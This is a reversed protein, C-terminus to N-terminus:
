FTLRTGLGVSFDMARAGRSGGEVQAFGCFGILSSYKWCLDAFYIERAPQGRSLYGFAAFQLDFKSQLPLVLGTGITVYNEYLGAQGLVDDVRKPYTALSSVWWTISTITDVYAVGIELDMSGTAYPFLSADSELFPGGGIRLGSLLHVVGHRTGWARVRVRLTLDGFANEIDDGTVRSIYPLEPQLFVNKFPLQASLTYIAAEDGPADIIM